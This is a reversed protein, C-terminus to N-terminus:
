VVPFFYLYILPLLVYKPFTSLFATAISLCSTLYICLLAALCTILIMMDNHPKSFSLNICFFFHVILLFWPMRTTQSRVMSIAIEDKECINCSNYTTYWFFCLFMTRIIVHGCERVCLWQFSRVFVKFLILSSQLPSTAQFMTTFTWVSFFWLKFHANLRLSCFHLVHVTCVSRRWLKNM